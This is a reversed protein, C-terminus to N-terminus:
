VFCPGCNPTSDVRHRLADMFIGIDDAQTVVVERVDGPWTTVEWAELTWPECLGPSQELKHVSMEQHLIDRCLIDLAMAVAARKSSENQHGVCLELRTACHPAHSFLWM